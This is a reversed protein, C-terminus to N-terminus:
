FNLFCNLFVRAANQLHALDKNNDIYYDYEYDLVNADAHNSIAANEAEKRRVCVTVAGLEDKFRQIEDPERSIVFLAAKDDSMGYSNFFSKFSNIQKKVYKFPVDGWESVLDKLDSLFKRHEPSKKGDWGAIKAMEKVTDVTSCKRGYYGLESLCLDVFSDKGSQPYGNVIILQM